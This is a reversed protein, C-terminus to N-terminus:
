TKAIFNTKLMLFESVNNTDIAGILKNSKDIVPFFRQKESNILDFFKILEDMAKVTKFKTAM